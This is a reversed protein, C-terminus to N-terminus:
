IATLALGSSWEYQGCSPEEFRHEKQWLDRQAKLDHDSLTRTRGGDAILARIMVWDSDLGHPYGGELSKPLREAPVRCKSRQFSPEADHGDSCELTYMNRNYYCPLGTRDVRMGFDYDEAGIRNCWEDFGNVLVATELPLAFSCGYLHAGPARIIGGDSGTGWRSDTGQGDDNFSVVRGQEVVLLRLKRYAGMALYGHHAAHKVQLWWGPMPVSLDDIAVFTKGTAVILATNRANAAAFWDQKTQRHKGQWPTPKPPIHLLECAGGIDAAFREKRGPIPLHPHGPELWYDVVVLQVRDLEDQAQQKFAAAFWEFHPERRNTFYAVTWTM